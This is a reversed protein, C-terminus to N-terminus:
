RAQGQHAMPQSRLARRAAYADFASHRSRVSRPRAGRKRKLRVMFWCAATLHPSHPRQAARSPCPGRTMGEFHEGLCRFLGSSRALHGFPQEHSVKVPSSCSNPAVGGASLACATYSREGAARPLKAVHAESFAQTRESSERERQETATGGSLLLTATLETTIAHAGLREVGSGIRVNKTPAPVGAVAGASLTRSISTGGTNGDYAVLPVKSSAVIGCQEVPEGLSVRQAVHELKRLAIFSPKRKPMPHLGRSM